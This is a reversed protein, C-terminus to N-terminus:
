RRGMMREIGLKGGGNVFLVLLGGIMALNKLFHVAQTERAPGAFEWYRHSILTAIISFALLLLVGYRVQFGV